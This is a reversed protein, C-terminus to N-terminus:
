GCSTAPTLTFNRATTAQAKIRATTVQSQWGPQSVILTVPGNDKDLWLAYRGNEGTTLTWTGHAGNVQVTAGPLPMAHRKCSRGTVTGALQGWSAPATATLRVTLTLAPYPNDSTFQLTATYTGPQTVSPSAANLLVTVKASHGPALTLQSPRATLWSPGGCGGYGPLQAVSASVTPNDNTGGQGGIRYFGCAGAGLYVPDGPANPLPTWADTAPSFAYGQNTLVTSQATIGGSILLQGSAAAYDSGWLDIPLHPIASWTNAHPNYVYGASASGTFDSVGGACYVRGAIGACSLYSVPSPYPAAAAWTNTAPNYVQVNNEGCQGTDPDCGGVLYMKGDLAAVGAGYYALPVSAAPSWRRLGPDYVETSPVPNGQDDFGGTVYLRGALFVAQPAYRAYSMAPLATWQGTRPDLVESATEGGVVYVAGTAPDAAAAAGEVPVPYHALPVWPGDSGAAAATHGARAAHGAASARGAPLPLRPSFHGRIRRLPAGPAAPAGLPTFGSPWTQFIAVSAPGTGTNRVTVTAAARGGIRATVTVPGAPLALRGADLRFGAQTVQGDRVTVPFTARQYGPATVTFPDRGAPSAFLWYLGGGAAPDAPTAVTVASRAPTGGTVTAGDVPRGTNADTVRGVVLGGPVAACRGVTVDDVQWFIVSQASAPPDTYHLRVRVSAQGAAQPLPLVVHGPTATGSWATTWTKGGDVSLQVAENQQPPINGYNLTFSDFQLEPDPNASLNIVPTILYTNAPRIPQQEYAAAYNGTGGTSNAWGGPQGFLWTNHPSATTVVTWGAPKAKGSFDESLNAAYRYGPATCAAQDIPDAIDRTLGAAGTTVTAAVPQYGPTIPDVDIRYSGHAPLQLTYHGTAPDTYSVAGGGAQSVRAYVPWGPASSGAVVGSVTVGASAGAGPPTHRGAVGAAAAPALLGVAVAAAMTVASVTVPRPWRAPTRGPVITAIRTMM